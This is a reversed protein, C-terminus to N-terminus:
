PLWAQGVGRHHTSLRSAVREQNRGRRTDLSRQHRKCFASPKWQQRLREDCARRKFGCAQVGEYEVLVSGGHNPRLLEGDAADTQHHGFLFEFGRCLDEQINFAPRTGSCRGNRGGSAGGIEQHKEQEAYGDAPRDRAEPQAISKVTHGREHDRDQQDRCIDEEPQIAGKASILPGTGHGGWPTRERRLGSRRLRRGGVSDM